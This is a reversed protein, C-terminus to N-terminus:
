KHKGKHKEKHKDRHKDVHKERHEERREEQKWNKYHGVPVRVLVRPVRRSEVWEFRAQPKRARYWGNERRCWYWGSHLFVEEQFGAVIQIGPSVVVLPPAMPLGIDIHISVQARAPTANLFFLMALSLVSKNM